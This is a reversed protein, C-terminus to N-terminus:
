GNHFVIPSRAGATLAFSCELAMVAGPLVPVRDFVQLGYGPAFAVATYPRYPYPTSVRNILFRGRSDTVDTRSAGRLLFDSLGQISPVSGWARDLLIVTAGAIPERTRSDIVSGVVNGVLDDSAAAPGAWWGALVFVACRRKVTM